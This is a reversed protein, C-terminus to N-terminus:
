AELVKTLRQHVAEALVSMDIRELADRADEIVSILQENKKLLANYDLAPVVGEREEFDRADAAFVGVGHKQYIRLWRTVTAENSGIERAIAEFTLGQSRLIFAKTIRSRTCNPVMVELM